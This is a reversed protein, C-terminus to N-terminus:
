LGASALIRVRTYIMQLRTATAVEQGNNILPDPFDISHLISLMVWVANPAIVEWSITSGWRHGRLRTEAPRSSEPKVARWKYLLRLAVMENLYLRVSSGPVGQVGVTELRVQRQQLASLKTNWRGTEVRQTGNRPRFASNEPVTSYKRSLFHM